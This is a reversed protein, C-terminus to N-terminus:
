YRSIFIYLILEFTEHSRCNRSRGRDRSSHRSCASQGKCPLPRCNLDTLAWSSFRLDSAMNRCVSLRSPAEIGGFTMLFDDFSRPVCGARQSTRATSSRCPHVLTNVRTSIPRQNIFRKLGSPRGQIKSGKAATAKTASANKTRLRAARSIGGAGDLSM